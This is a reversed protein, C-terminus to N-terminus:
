RPTTGSSEAAEELLGKDRYVRAIEVLARAGDTPLDQSRRLLTQTKVVIEVLDDRLLMSAGRGM